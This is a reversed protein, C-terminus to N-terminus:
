PITQISGIMTMRGVPLVIPASFGPTSASVSGGPLAIIGPMHNCGALELADFSFNLGGGRTTSAGGAGGGPDVMVTVGGVFSDLSIATRLRGLLRFVQFDVERGPTFTLSAGAPIPSASVGLGGSFVAFRAKRHDIKDTVDVTANLVVGDVSFPGGSVVSKTVLAARILQAKFRDEVVSTPTEPPRPAPPLFTVERVVFVVRRNLRFQPETAAKPDKLRTAGLGFTRSGRLIKQALAEGGHKKLAAALLEKGVLARETSIAEEQARREAPNAIRRAIDAHGEVRFEYIPDRTDNSRIIERALKDIKERQEATVEAEYESFGSLELAVRERFNVPVPMAQAFVRPLLPFLSM